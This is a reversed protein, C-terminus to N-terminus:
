EVRAPRHSWGYVAMGNSIEATVEGPRACCYWDLYGGERLMSAIVDGAARFSYAVAAGDQRQWETNTLASWLEAGFARDEMLRGYFNEYWAGEFAGQVGERAMDRFGNLGGSIREVM